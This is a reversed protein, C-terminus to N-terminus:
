PAAAPKEQSPSLARRLGAVVLISILCGLADPALDALRANHGVVTAQALETTVGLAMTALFAALLRQTGFAVVALLLLVAFGRLHQVKTISRALDGWSLSFDVQFRHRGLPARVATYLSLAAFLVFPIARSLQGESTPMGSRRLLDRTIFLMAGAAILLALINSAM